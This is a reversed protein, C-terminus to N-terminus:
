NSMTLDTIYKYVMCIGVKCVDICAVSSHARSALYVSGLSNFIGLCVSVLWHSQLYCREEDYPASYLFHGPM